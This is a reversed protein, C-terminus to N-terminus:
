LRLTGCQTGDVAWGGAWTHKEVFDGAELWLQDASRYLSGRELWSQWLRRTEMEGKDGVATAAVDRSFRFAGHLGRVTSIGGKSVMSGSGADGSRAGRQDGVDVHGGLRGGGNGGRTGGAGRARPLSHSFATAASFRGSLPPLPPAM